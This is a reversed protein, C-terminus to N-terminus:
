HYDVVEVEYAHGKEFRFCVRFQDNVRISHQGKRAGKLPELRNGPPVELAELRDVANVMILKRRAREAMDHSVIKRAARTDEGNFLDHTGQNAFSKIMAAFIVSLTLSILTPDFPFILGESYTRM